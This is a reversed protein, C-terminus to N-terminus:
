FVQARAQHPLWREGWKEEFLRRNTEFLSQYEVPPLKGFSAMGHHHVFADEACIVQYGAHKVRRAYDEDEFMGLGFREDLLGVEDVVTRRMAVCYMALMRIEFFQNAHTQTYDHAFAPMDKIDVYSVAIRAENGTWNTVPGVMGVEPRRAYRLLQRLWGPPVVTDNNLLVVFESTASLRLGQNNAAAFGRNSENFVIRVRTEAAQLRQLYDKVPQESGNDVIVVEFNPYDTSLVSPVCQRLHDLGNYSIIIVTTKGCDSHSENDPFHKHRLRHAPHFLRKFKSFLTYWFNSKGAMTVISKPAGNMQYHEM